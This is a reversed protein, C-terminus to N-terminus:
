VNFLTNRLNEYMLKNGADNPHLTDSPDFINPGEIRSISTYKFQSIHPLNKEKAVSSIVQDVIRMKFIYVPNSENSTSAYASTLLCLRSNVALQSIKDVCSRLRAKFGSEGGTTARDNTGLQMFIFDDYQNLTSEFLQRDLWTLTSSGIIGENIVWIKQVTRCCQIHAYSNANTAVNKVRITHKGYDFTTTFVNEWSSEADFYNFTGVLEGDVYVEINDNSDGVSWKRYLISINDAIIDFSFENQRLSQFNKGLLNLAEGNKNPQASIGEAAVTNTVTTGSAAKFSFKELEQKFSIVFDRKTYASGPADETITMDGFAYAIYQRYLNIWTPSIPDTTNRPDTLYGTRPTTTSTNSAGVGWSISDGIFKTKISNFGSLKKLLEDKFVTLPDFKKTLNILDAETAIRVWDSWGYSGWYWARFVDHSGRAFATMYRVGINFKLDIFYQEGAKPLHTISTSTTPNSYVLYVDSKTLTHVDYDTALPVPNKGTAILTDALTKTVVQDWLTRNVGSSDTGRLWMQGKYSMYVSPILTGTSGTVVHYPLYVGADTTPYNKALSPVLNRAIHVGTVKVSDLNEEGLIVEKFQPNSNAWEKVSVVLDTGLKYETGTWTYTGVKTSDTDNNVRVSVNAKSPTYALMAAYSNFSAEVGSQALLTKFEVDDIRENQADDRAQSAAAAEIVSAPTAFDSAERQAASGLGSIVLDAVQELPAKKTETGQVIPLMDQASVSSTPELESIKTGPVEIVIQQAM